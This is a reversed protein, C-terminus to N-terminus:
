EHTNLSGGVQWMKNAWRRREEVRSVDMRVTAASFPTSLLAMRLADSGFAPVGDPFDSHVFSSNLAGGHLRWPICLALPSM